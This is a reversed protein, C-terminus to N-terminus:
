KAEWDATKGGTKKLLQVKEIVTGKDLAKSMDYLTLAAITVGALAEMEVGTRGHCEVTCRVQFAPTQDEAPVIEVEISDLALPHCLPVLDATKKAGQIGAIRATEVLGGKPGKGSSLVEWSEPSFRVLAQACATRATPTKKGVNVMKAQGAEDLHSIETSRSQNTSM